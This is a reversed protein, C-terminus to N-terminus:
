DAPGEFLLAIDRAREVRDIPVQVEVQGVDAALEGIAGQLMEGKLYVPIGAAEIAGAVVHGQVVSSAIFVTRLDNFELVPAPDPVACGAVLRGGCDVCVTM